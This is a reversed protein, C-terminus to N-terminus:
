VTGSYIGLEQLAALPYNDIVHSALFSHILTPHVDYDRQTISLSFFQSMNGPDPWIKFFYGAMDPYHRTTRVQRSDHLRRTGM